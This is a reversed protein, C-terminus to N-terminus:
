EKTIKEYEEWYKPFAKKLKKFNIRDARFFCESLAQVFNGGYKQMNEVVKFEKGDM